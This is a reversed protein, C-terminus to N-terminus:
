SSGAVLRGCSISSRENYHPNRPECVGANGPAGPLPKRSDGTRATMPKYIGTPSEEAVPLAVESVRKIEPTGDRTVASRRFRVTKEQRSVFEPCLLKEVGRAKINIAANDDANIVLGCSQCVFLAQTERNDPETHGCRSCEQSTGNPKVKITLKNKRLGKYITYTVVKGWASNLITRNLGAKAAAGNKIFRGNEDCKAKPRKTM